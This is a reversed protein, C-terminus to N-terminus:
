GAVSCRSNRVGVSYKLSSCAAASKVSLGTPELFFLSLTVAKVESQRILVTLVGRPVRIGYTDAAAVVAVVM